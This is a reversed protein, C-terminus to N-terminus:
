YYSGRGWFLLIIIIILLIIGIGGGGWGGRMPTGPEYGRGYWGRRYGSHGFGAFALIILVIIVIWWGIVCVERRL